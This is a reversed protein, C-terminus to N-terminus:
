RKNRIEVSSPFYAKRIYEVNTSKGIPLLAIPTLESLKIIDFSNVHIDMLYEYASLTHIGFYCCLVSDKNVKPVFNTDVVYYDGNQKTVLVYIRHAACAAFQKRTM